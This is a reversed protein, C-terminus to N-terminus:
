RIEAVPVAASLSAAKHDKIHTQTIFNSILTPNKKYQKIYIKEITKTYTTNIQMKKKKEIYVPKTNLSECNLALNEASHKPHSAAVM